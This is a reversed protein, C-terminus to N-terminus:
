FLLFMVVIKKGERKQKDEDPESAPKAPIPVPETTAPACSIIPPPPVQASWMYEQTPPPPYAPFSTPPMM